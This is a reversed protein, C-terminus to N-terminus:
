NYLKSKMRTFNPIPFMSLVKKKGHWHYLFLNTMKLNNQWFESYGSTQINSSIDEKEKNDNLFETLHM